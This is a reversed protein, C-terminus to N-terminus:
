RWRREEPCTQGIPEQQSRGTEEKGFLCRQFPHAYTVLQLPQHHAGDSKQSPMMFVESSTWMNMPQEETHLWHCVDTNVNEPLRSVRHCLHAATLPPCASYEFSFHFFFVSCSSESWRCLQSVMQMNWLSWSIFAHKPPWFFRDIM